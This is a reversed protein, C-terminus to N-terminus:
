FFSVVLAGLFVALFGAIMYGLTKSYGKPSLYNNDDMKRISPYLRWYFVAISVILAVVSWLKTIEDGTILVVILLAIFILKTGAVWNVLYNVLAHVEPDKKSKEFANFFGMGNGKTSGPAFYLLIVNLVELVLFLIVAISLLNM